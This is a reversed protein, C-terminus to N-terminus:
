FYHILCIVLNKDHFSLIQLYRFLGFLSPKEFLSRINSRTIQIGWQIQLWWVTDNYSECGSNSASAFKRLSQTTTLWCTDIFLCIQWEIQVLDFNVLCFFPFVLRLWLSSSWRRLEPGPRLSHTWGAALPLFLLQKEFHSFIFEVVKHVCIVVSKKVWQMILWAASM